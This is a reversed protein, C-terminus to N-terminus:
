QNENVIPAFDIGEVRLDESANLSSGVGSLPQTRQSRRANMTLITALAFSLRSPSTHHCSCCFDARQASANPHVHQLKSVGCLGSWELVSAVCHSDRNDVNGILVVNTQQITYWIDLFGGPGLGHSAAGYSDPNEARGVVM